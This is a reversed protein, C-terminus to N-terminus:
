FSHSCCSPDPALGLGALAIHTLLLPFFPKDALPVRALCLCWQTPLISHRVFDPNLMMSRFMKVKGQLATITGWPMNDFVRVVVVSLLGLVRYVDSCFVMLFDSQLSPKEAFVNNILVVVEM